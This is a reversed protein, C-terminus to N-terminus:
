FFVQEIRRCFASGPVFLRRCYHSYIYYETLGFTDSASYFIVCTRLLESIRLADAELLNIKLELPSYLIEEVEQISLKTPDIEQLSFYPVYLLSWPHGKLRFVFTSDRRIEIERGYVNSEWINMNKLSMFVQAVSKVSAQVLMIRLNTDYSCVGRAGQLSIKDPKRIFLSM